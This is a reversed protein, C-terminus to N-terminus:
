NGRKLAVLALIGTGLLYLASPLPVSAIRIGFLDAGPTEAANGPYNPFFTTGSEATSTPMGSGMMEFVEETATTGALGLFDFAAPFKLDSLTVRYVRPTQDAVPSYNEGSAEFIFGTETSVTTPGAHNPFCCLVMALVVWFLKVKM